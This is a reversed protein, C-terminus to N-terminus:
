QDTKNEGLYELVAEKNYFKILLGSNVDYYEKDIKEFLFKLNDEKNDNESFNKNIFDTNALLIEKNIEDPASFMDIEGRTIHQGDKEISIFQRAFEEQPIEFLYEWVSNNSIEPCKNSGNRHVNILKSIIWPIPKRFLWAVVLLTPLSLGMYKLLFALNYTEANFAADIDINFLKMIFYNFVFVPISYMIILLIKESESKGEYSVSCVRGYLYKILYGPFIFFAIFVINYM